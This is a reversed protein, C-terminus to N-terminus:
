RSEKRGGEDMGREIEALGSVREGRLDQTHKIRTYGEVEDSGVRTVEGGDM